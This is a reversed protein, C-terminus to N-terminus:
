FAPMIGLYIGGWNHYNIQEGKYERSRGTLTYGISILKWRVQAGFEYETLIKKVDSYLLTYVSPRSLLAGTLTANHAQYKIAPSVYIYFHWPNPRESKEKAFGYNFPRNQHGEWSNNVNILYVKLSQCYYDMYQGFNLEHSWGAIIWQFTSRGERSASAFIKKEFNAKLNIAFSGGNAIQHKWGQPVPRTTGLWQESHIKKQADGALSKGMEGFAIEYSLKATKGSNISTVGIGVFQYSAYPREGYDIGAKELHQPTFATVGFFITQGMIDGRMPNLLWSKRKSFLNTLIEARVGGTYNDDYNRFFSKSLFTPILFDNETYLRIGFYKVPQQACLGQSFFGVILIFIIKQCILRSM